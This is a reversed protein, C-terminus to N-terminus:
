GRAPRELSFMGYTGDPMIEVSRIRAQGTWEVLVGGEVTPIVGLREVLARDVAQLLKQSDDLVVSSIRKAEEGDWGSLLSAFESLREGM